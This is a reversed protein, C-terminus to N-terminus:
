TSGSLGERRRARSEKKKKFMLNECNVCWSAGSNGERFRTRCIKTVIGINLTARQLNLIPSDVSHMITILDEPEKFKKKKGKM